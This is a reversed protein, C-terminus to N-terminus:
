KKLGAALEKYIVTMKQAYAKSQEHGMAMPIFGQRKMEEQIQPMNAVKIFADELKKIIYEPTNPPVAVGRDVAEEMDVKLEKLTPADPFTPFRENM